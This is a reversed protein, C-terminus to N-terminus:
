QISLDARQNGMGSILDRFNLAVDAQQVPSGVSKSGDDINQWEESVDFEAFTTCNKPAGSESGAIIEQDRRIVIRTLAILALRAINIDLKICVPQQIGLLIQDTQCSM